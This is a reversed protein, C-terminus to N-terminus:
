RVNSGDQPVEFKRDNELRFIKVALRKYTGKSTQVTVVRAFGEEGPHVEVVRGLPWQGRKVNDEKILVLDNINIQEKQVTWKSRLTLPLLYEHLWCKWFHDSLIQVQRWRKRSCVDKKCIDNM